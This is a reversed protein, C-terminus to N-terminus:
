SNTSNLIANTDAIWEGIGRCLERPPFGNELDELMSRAQELLQMAEPAAAILPAHAKDYAVAINAGTSEDIVLGQHNGTEAVYWNFM